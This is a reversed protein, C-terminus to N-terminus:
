NWRLVPHQLPDTNSQPLASKRHDLDYLTVAWTHTISIQSQSKHSQDLSVPRRRTVDRSNPHVLIWTNIDEHLHPWMTFGLLEHQLCKEHGHHQWGDITELIASYPRDRCGPYSNVPLDIWRWLEFDIRKFAGVPNIMMLIHPINKARLRWLVICSVTWILEPCQRHGSMVTFSDFRAHKLRLSKFSPGYNVKWDIYSLSNKM